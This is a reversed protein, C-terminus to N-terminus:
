NEKKDDQESEKGTQESIEEVLSLSYQQYYLIQDRSPIVVSWENPVFHDGLNERMMKLIVPSRWVNGVAEYRDHLMRFIERLNEPTEIIALAQLISPLSLWVERPYTPTPSEVAQFLRLLLLSAVHSPVPKKQEISDNLARMLSQLFRSLAEDQNDSLFMEIQFAVYRRSTELMRFYGGNKTEISEKRPSLCKSAVFMCTFVLICIVILVIAENYTLLLENELDNIQSNM